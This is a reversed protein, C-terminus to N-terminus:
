GPAGPPMGTVQPVMGPPPGPAVPLPGTPGPAVPPVLEKPPAQPALPPPAVSADVQDIQNKIHELLKVLRQMTEPKEENADIRMLTNVTESFLQQLDVVEYYEIVDDEVAREIIRQCYDYSSCMISYASELDPFELLEAALAPNIIKMGILKEIQEMKTAPDKSLSSSASFQISFSDRERKIDAWKIDARGKKKPLIEEGKPFVEICLKAIDMLFRIYSQLAPNHRESEVDEVTQLAVGSNLGSPKKAQASLQSIGTIEYGTRIWFELMQLYQSDIAPPTAITVSSGTQGPLPRYPYVAGIENSIMSPKVESGEPVWISNAPSLEIALHIREALVDIQNQITYLTDAMAVSNNGRIPMEPWLIAFPACDYDIDRTEIIQANVIHYKKKDQLNWYIVYEVKRSPDEELWKAPDGKLKDKLYYLPFQKRILYCRTIQGFNLEAPDYIYEWPAVRVVCKSEDDIWMASCEFIDAIRLCEIAKRYVDECEFFEDFYVQAQRCVKRTRFTGVIPNFFPRVKTQSIKSVHTDIASKIINVSPTTGTDEGAEINYFSLPNGYQERMDESRRGNNAYRNFNRRYKALKKENKASLTAMDKFIFDTTM